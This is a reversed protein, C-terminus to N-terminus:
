AVAGEGEGGLEITVIEPPVGFRVPMISCGLGGSIILHRQNEVIHGYAYRNGFQSPVVPSYGLFRVQGGHTHGSLTLSVRSPVKPFIDPEHAMLIIPADDSVQALTAPLDDVGAFRRGRAMAKAVPSIGKVDEAGRFPLDSKKGARSRRYVHEVIALQDGLGALWFPKGDNAIRFAQNEYVPIGARELAQGAIIPGKGRRQAGRDDWWDHNGLVAHVGLRAKLGALIAAWESSPVMRTRWHHGAVFDGLLLIIDAELSNTVDVIHEIRAPSMDPEGAHLDAVVALCLKFNAPWNDPTFRYRTTVLRLRPEVGFAYGALGFGGFLGGGLSRLLTRRSIM